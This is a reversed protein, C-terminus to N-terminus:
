LKVKDLHNVKFISVKNVVILNFLETNNKVFYKEEEVSGCIPEKYPFTICNEFFYLIAKQSDRINRM